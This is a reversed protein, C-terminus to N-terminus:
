LSIDRGDGTKREARLYQRLIRASSEGILKSLEDDRAQMVGRLSGFTRLLKRKKAPGITPVTDLLSQTQRTRKLVTHYSVAFRHSEDRIRQLLKVAHSEPPLTVLIFEASEEISQAISDAFQRDFSQYTTSSKSIVIQEYQKALGIAPRVVNTSNMAELAAALQGKGGDILFLNPIGWQKINKPSLRRSIVENMHAFDDNGKIRMKFKRYASKDPMGGAFVVMSAVTDTGSMHSIDFGEIRQPAKELGLLKMLENLGYDKSIDMFERDSFIVQKKLANLNSLQNRYRAADEFNHARAAQKMKKEIERIIAQRDGRLYRILQRLNIRYAELSTKGNAVGPDLGLQEYLKSGMTGENRVVAYPFIKRLYRLARKVALGNIYPGCYEAGDDLPRRTMTVTPHESKIDIRVYSLSKDDRLLINYQPLYRRIMEAELFLADIESGTEIWETDAIESVLADTKPDRM